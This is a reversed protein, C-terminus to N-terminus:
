YHYGGSAGSEESGSTGGGSGSPAGGGPAAAAAGGVKIASWTGVDKFGQGAAEGPAKDQAFTYLPKGKYTVQMSGDPRSVTALSGVAGSPAGSAALPHWVSTCASTTCIFHGAHEVSLAYLTMGQADVLVTGGLASNSATKVVAGSSSSSSASSSSKAAPAAASGGYSSSGCAALLLSAALSAAILSLPKRM